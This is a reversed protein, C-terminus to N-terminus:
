SEGAILCGVSVACKVRSWCGSCKKRRGGQGREQVGKRNVITTTTTNTQM